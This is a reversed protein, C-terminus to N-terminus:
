ISSTTNTEENQKQSTNLKGKEAGNKEREEAEYKDVLRRLLDNERKLYDNDKKLSAIENVSEPPAPPNEGPLLLRAGAKDLTECLPRSLPKRKGTAWGWFTVPNVDLSTAAETMNGDYKTVIASFLLQIDKEIGM